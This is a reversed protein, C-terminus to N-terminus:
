DECVSYDLECQTIAGSYNSDCIAECAIIGSCMPYCVMDRTTQANGCCEDFIQQCTQKANVTPNNLAWVGILLASLTFLKLFKM